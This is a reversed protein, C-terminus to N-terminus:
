GGVIETWYKEFITKDWVEATTVDVGDVLRSAMVLYQDKVCTRPGEFTLVKLVANTGDIIEDQTWTVTVGDAVATWGAWTGAGVATAVEAPTDDTALLSIEEEIGDIGITIRGEAGGHTVTAQIVNPSQDSPAANVTWFITVGTDSADLTPQETLPLYPSAEKQVSGYDPYSLVAAEAAATTGDFLTADSKAEVKYYFGM